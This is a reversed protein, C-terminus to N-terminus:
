TSFIPTNALLIPVYEHVLAVPTDRVSIERIRQITEVSGSTRFVESLRDSVVSQYTITRYGLERENAVLADGLTIEGTRLAARTAACLRGLNIWSQAFLIPQRPQGDIAAVIVVDRQVVQATRDDGIRGLGSPFLYPRDAPNLIELAWQEGQNGFTERVKETVRDVCLLGRLRADSVKEVLKKAAASARLRAMLRRLPRPRESAGQEWFLVYRRLEFMLTNLSWGVLATVLLGAFVGPYEGAERATTLYWGIGGNAPHLMEVTISLLFAVSCSIEVGTFIGPLAWQLKTSMRQLQSLRMFELSDRVEQPLSSMANITSLLVPWIAGFAIVAIQSRFSLGLVIVSLPWVAASPLSRLVNVVPYGIAFVTKSTGLVFGIFLGVLLAVGFGFAWRELSLGLHYPLTHVTNQDGMMNRAHRADSWLQQLITSPAPWNDQRLLGQLSLLQWTCALALLILALYWASHRRVHAAWAANRAIVIGDM